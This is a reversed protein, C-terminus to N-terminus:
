SIQCLNSKYTCWAVLKYLKGMGFMIKFEDAHMPTHADIIKQILNHKFHPSM